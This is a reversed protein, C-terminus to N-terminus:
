SVTESGEGFEASVTFANDVPHSVEKKQQNRAFYALKNAAEPSIRQGQNRNLFLPMTEKAESSINAWEAKDFEYLGCMVKRCLDDYNECGAFPCKGTLMYWWTVGLSWMDSAWDVNAGKTVVEPAFFGLTGSHKVAVGEERRWSLDFDILKAVPHIPDNNFILINEPKIDAQVIRKSKLYILVDIMQIMIEVAMSEPFGKGAYKKKM